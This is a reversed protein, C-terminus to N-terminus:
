KKTKKKPEDESASSFRNKVKKVKKDLKKKFKAERMKVGQKVSKECRKEGEGKNIVEVVEALNLKVTGDLFRQMYPDEIYKSQLEQRSVSKGHRGLEIEIALLTKQEKAM